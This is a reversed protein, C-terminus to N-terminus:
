WRADPDDKAGMTFYGEPILVMISGTRPNKFTSPLDSRYKIVIPTFKLSINKRKKKTKELSVPRPTPLPMDKEWVCRFGYDTDNSSPYNDELYPIQCSTVPKYFSGGKLIKDEGKPPGTPNKVDKVWDEDEGFWDRTWESVNGAMDMVGYPSKDKEFFGVPLIGTNKFLMRTKGKRTKLPTDKNNCYTPNWTNGWPYIRGDTGRAAKEWEAETPLRVMAWRCYAKADNWSVMVVPYDDTGSTIWKEWNGEAQYGTEKVFKKFQRNTVEYKYIYYEDLYVRKTPRNVKEGDEGIYSGGMVFEGSPIHLMVAGDIPNKMVSSFRDNSHSKGKQSPTNKKYFLIYTAGVFLFSFVLGWIILLIFSRKEDARNKM